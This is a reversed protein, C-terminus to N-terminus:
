ILMDGSRPPPPSAPLYPPIAAALPVFWPRRGQMEAGPHTPPSSRVVKLPPPPNAPMRWLPHVGM